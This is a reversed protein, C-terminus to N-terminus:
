PCPRSEHSHLVLHPRSSFRRRLCVCRHRHGARCARKVFQMHWIPLSLSLSHSHTVKNTQFRKERIEEQCSRDAVHLALNINRSPNENRGEGGRPHTSWKMTSRSRELEAQLQFEDRGRSWFVLLLHRVICGRGRRQLIHSSHECRLVSHRWHRVCSNIAGPWSLIVDFEEKVKFLQTRWWWRM